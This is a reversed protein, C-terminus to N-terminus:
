FIKLMNLVEMQSFLNKWTLNKLYQNLEKILFLLSIRWTSKQFLFRKKNYAFHVIDEPSFVQFKNAGPIEQRWKIIKGYQDISVKLSTPDIPYLGAIPRKRKGDIDFWENGGSADENRVKLLFANSYIAINEAVASLVQHTTIGSVRSIQALRQRIYSAAQPNKSLIDFENKMIQEAYKDAARAFLPETDYARAVEKLDYEPYNFTTRSGPPSGNYALVKSRAFKIPKRVDIDKIMTKVKDLTTM